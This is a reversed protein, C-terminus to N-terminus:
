HVFGLVLYFIPSLHEVGRAEMCCIWLRVLNYIAKDPVHLM